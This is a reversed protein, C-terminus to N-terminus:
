MNGLKTELDLLSRKHFFSFHNKNWKLFEKPEQSSWIKVKWYDFTIVGDFVWAHFDFHMESLLKPVLYPRNIFEGGVGKPWTLDTKQKAYFVFFKYASHM